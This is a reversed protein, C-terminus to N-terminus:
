FKVFFFSFFCLFISFFLVSWSKLHVMENPQSSSFFTDTYIKAQTHKRAQTEKVLLLLLLLWIWPRHTYPNKQTAKRMPSWHEGFYNCKRKKEEKECDYHSSNQDNQDLPFNWSHKTTSEKHLLYNSFKKLLIM